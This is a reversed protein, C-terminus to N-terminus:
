QKSTRKGIDQARKSLPRKLDFLMNRADIRIEFINSLNSYKFSCNLRLQAIKLRSASYRRVQNFRIIAGASLRHCVINYLRITYSENSM